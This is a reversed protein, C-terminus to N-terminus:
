SSNVWRSLAMWSEIMNLFLTQLISDFCIWFIIHYHSLCPFFSVMVKLRQVEELLEERGMEEVMWGLGEDM